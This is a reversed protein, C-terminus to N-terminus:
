RRTALYRERGGRKGSEKTEEQGVTRRQGRREVGEEAATEAGVRTEEGARNKWAEM